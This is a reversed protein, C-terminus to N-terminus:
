EFCIEGRIITMHVTIDSNFVVFDADKGPTISGKRNYVGISKAPNESAMRIADSIPIGAECVLYRVADSLSIMSGALSGKLTRAEGERVLVETGEWRKFCGDGLGRVDTGDTIL